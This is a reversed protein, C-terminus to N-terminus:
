GTGSPGPVEPWPPPEYAPVPMWAVVGELPRHGPDRQRLYGRSSWWGTDPNFWLESVTWAGPHGREWAALYYGAEAPPSARWASPLLGRLEDVWEPHDGHHVEVWRALAAPSSLSQEMMALRYGAQEAEVREGENALANLLKVPAQGHGPGEPCNEASHLTDSCKM